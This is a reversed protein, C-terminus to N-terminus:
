IGSYAVSWAVKMFRKSYAIKFLSGNEKFSLPTNSLAVVQMMLSKALTKVTQECCQSIQCEESSLFGM